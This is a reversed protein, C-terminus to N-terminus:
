PMPTDDVSPIPPNGGGQVSQDIDICNGTM